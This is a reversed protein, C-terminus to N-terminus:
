QSCASSRGPRCLQGDVALQVKIACELNLWHAFGRAFGSAIHQVIFVTGTFNAPLSKIISMVAKPGGTSAGIALIRKGGGQYGARLTAKEVKNCPWRRIVKIRCLLRVKETLSEAFAGDQDLAQIGPKEMVDLAGKRMATFAYNVERDDMTASLVLIPTPHKAMIIEIAALGDMMPMMIDMVVLDPKLRETLDVAEQGNGAEGVVLIDSTAHFIDRLVARVVASDDALLVRIM